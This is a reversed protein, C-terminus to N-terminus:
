VKLAMIIYGTVSDPVFKKLPNCLDLLLMDCQGEKNLCQPFTLYIINHHYTTNGSNMNNNQQFKVPINLKHLFFSTRIIQLLYLNFPNSILSAILDGRKDKSALKWIDSLRGQNLSAQFDFVFFPLRMTFKNLFYSNDPGM